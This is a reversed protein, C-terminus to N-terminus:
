SNKEYIVQKLFLGQPYLTIGAYERKKGLIAQRVSEVSREQTGVELLTGTIIRIMHHLFGNGCFTFIIGQQNRNQRLEEIKIESITRITSKGDKRDTCFSKYDMTGILLKAAQRMAEINLAKGCAYSYKRFFVSERERTDIIYQYIKEVADFRSHFDLDVENVQLIKIDEPLVQNMKQRITNVDLNSRSYFNAVQGLAHVGADTRGSGILKIPELLVESLLEELLGQISYDGNVAKPIRQWGSYNTGDYSIILKINRKGDMEGPM